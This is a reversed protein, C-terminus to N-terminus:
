SFVKVVLEVISAGDTEPLDINNQIFNMLDPHNTLGHFLKNVDEMSAQFSEKFYLGIDKATLGVQISPKSTERTRCDEITVKWEMCLLELFNM